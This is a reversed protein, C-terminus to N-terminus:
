DPPPSPLGRGCGSVGNGKQTWLVNIFLWTALQTLELTVLMVSVPSRAKDGVM